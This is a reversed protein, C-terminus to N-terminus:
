HNRRRRPRCRSVHAFPERINADPHKKFDRGREASQQASIERCFYRAVPDAHDEPQHQQIRRPHRHMLKVLQRLTALRIRQRQPQIQAAAIRHIASSLLIDGLMHRRCPADHKSRPRKRPQQANSRARHLHQRHVLRHLQREFHRRRGAVEHDAHRRRRARSDVQAM